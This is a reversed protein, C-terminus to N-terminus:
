FNKQRLFLDFFYRDPLVEKYITFVSMDKRLM